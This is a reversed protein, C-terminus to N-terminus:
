LSNSCVYIIYCNIIVIVSCTSKLLNYLYIFLSMNNCFQINLNIWKVFTM